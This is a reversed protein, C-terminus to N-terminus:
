KDNVSEGGADITMRVDASAERGSEYHSAGKIDCSWFSAVLAFDRVNRGTLFELCGIRPHTLAPLQDHELRHSKTRPRWHLPPPPPPPPELFASTWASTLGHDCKVSHKIESIHRLREALKFM